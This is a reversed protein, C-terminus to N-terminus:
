GVNMMRVDCSDVSAQIFVKGSGEVLTTPFEYVAGMPLMIGTTLLNTSSASIYLTGPGINQIIPQQTNSYETEYVGQATTIIM